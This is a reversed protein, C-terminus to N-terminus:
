SFSIQVSLTMTQTSLKSVTPTILAHDLMSGSNVTPTAQLFIGGEGVTWNATTTPFYFSLTFSSSDSTGSYLPQRGSTAFESQLQTDSSSVPATGAGVAGYVPAMLMPTLNLGLIGNQDAAASWLMAQVLVTYGTTTMVNAVERQDVVRGRERVVLRMQGSLDV